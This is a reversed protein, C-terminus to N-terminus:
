RSDVVPPSLDPRLEIFPSPPRGPRGTPPHKILRIYGREELVGLAEKVEQATHLRGKLARHVTNITSRQGEVQKHLHDLVQRARAQLPSTGMMAMAAMSHQTIHRMLHIARTMSEGSVPVVWPRVREESHAVCHLVAALRLAHGPAKGLWACTLEDVDGGLLPEIAARYDRWKERADESLKVLHLGGGDAIKWDLMKIVESSYKRAVDEPIPPGDHKRQGLPSHPVFFLIRALLGRGAFQPSDTLGRLASPQMCVGVTLRPMNLRVTERNIRDVIDPDGDHAKLFLGINPVGKTYRGALVDFADGESSLVAMAEGHDRLLTGLREATPESTWLRPLVPVVPLNEELDVLENVWKSVKEPETNPNTVIKRLAKIRELVRQLESETRRVLPELRKEEFAEWLMLPKKAQSEIASKRNAPMMSVGFYNCAVERHGPSAEIWVRRAVATTVVALTMAAALELPTEVSDSLAQVYEGLWGPLWEADFTPLDPRDDFAVLPPWEVAQAQPATHDAVLTGSM